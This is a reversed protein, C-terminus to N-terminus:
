LRAQNLFHALEFRSSCPLLLRQVHLDIEHLVDNARPRHTDDQELLWAVLGQMYMSPYSYSFTPSPESVIVDFLQSEDQIAYHPPVRDMMEIITIGLSWMDIKETYNQQRIVEPAMWKNTGLRENPQCKIKASLGFDALKVQGEWGLLVNECKIDRHLYGKAHLYTLGRTIERTIYVTHAEPIDRQCLVAFVSCRMLDMSIWVTDQWLSIERVKILNPHGYSMIRLERLIAARYVIDPELKCRKIACQGQKIIYNAKVVAGNVGTGIDEFQNYREHPDSCSLPLKPVMTRIKNELKNNSRTLPPLPPITYYPNPPYWPKKTIQKALELPRLHFTVPLDPKLYAHGLIDPIECAGGPSRWVTQKQYICSPKKSLVGTSQRRKTSVLNSILPKNACNPESTSKQM